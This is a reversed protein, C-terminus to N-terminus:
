GVSPQPDAGPLEMPEFRASQVLGLHGVVAAFTFIVPHYELPVAFLLACSMLVILLAM